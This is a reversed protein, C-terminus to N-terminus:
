LSHARSPGLEVADDAARLMQEFEAELGSFNALVHKTLVEHAREGLGADQLEAAATAAASAAREYASLALVAALDDHDFM